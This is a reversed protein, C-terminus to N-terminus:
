YVWQLRTFYQNTHGTTGAKDLTARGYGASIRIRRNAWWNVGAFWKKLYGGDIGKDTLDV